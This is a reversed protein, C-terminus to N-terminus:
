GFIDATIAAYWDLAERANQARTAPTDERASLFSSTAGIKGDTPAHTGGIKVGDSTEILSWCTGAYRAAAAPARALETAIAHAAVSAQSVASSASKPMEGALAADGIVYINRDLTSKMSNPAIPCYGTDDTLHADRAINGAM